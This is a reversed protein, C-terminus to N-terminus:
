DGCFAIATLAYVQAVRVLEAVPVEEEVTHAGKADPGHTIAPIGALAYFTNGDDVFPKFGAPLEAGMVARCAFQFSRAAEHEPDLEYADRVFHFMGQCTIGPREEIAALVARFEAEVATPDTGPLWRRTGSLEFCTPSQNYIEGSSVKGVFLSEPGAVPHQRESLQVNLQNLRQVLEAGAAIVDPQQSGGLVEHVPDGARQVSIELVALGRGVVNLRDSNYEPLMVADGVYGSRILQDVQSGDGWPAEHLDHATLM